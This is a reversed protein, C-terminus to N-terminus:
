DGSATTKTPPEGMETLVEKFDLAEVAERLRAVNASKGYRSHTISRHAHGLLDTVTSDQAGSDSLHQRFTHRFSHFVKRKDAVGVKRRYRRFWNSLTAEPCNLKKARSFVYEEGSAEQEGVFEMLGLALLQSHVPVLRRSADTKLSDDPDPEVSLCLVGDVEAFNDTRLRIVEGLRLGSYLGLLSGWYREPMYVREGQKAGKAASGVPRAVAAAAFDPGFLTRLDDDTFPVRQDRASPEKVKLGNAPNRNLWERKVGYNFLARLWSLEKNQTTRALGRESFVELIGECVEPNVTSLPTDAGLWEVFREVVKSREEVNKWEGTASQRKVYAAALEGVTHHATPDAAVATSPGQVSLTRPAFAAAQERETLAAGISVVRTHLLQRLLRQLMDPSLTVGAESLLADAVPAVIEVREDELDDTYDDAVYLLGGEVDGREKGSQRSARDEALLRRLYSDCLREILEQGRLVDDGEGEGMGDAGQGSEVIRAAADFLRGIEVDLAAAL